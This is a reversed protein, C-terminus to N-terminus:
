FPVEDDLEEALPEPKPPAPLERQAPSRVRICEVTKGGMQTKTPYLEIKKGPWDDTDEGCVDVTADFNTMNLPLGKKTEAFSLVIKQQEEGKSNKFTELTAATITVTMPKGKLDACKLYKSPFVQDRKM